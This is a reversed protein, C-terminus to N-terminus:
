NGSGLIANWKKMELTHDVLASVTSMEIRARGILKKVCCVLRRGRKM